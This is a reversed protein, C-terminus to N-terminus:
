ARPPDADAGLADTPAPGPASSAASTGARQVLDVTALVELLFESAATAITRLDDPPSQELVEVLVQHHVQALDLVSVGDEVARHGLEYGAALAAESRRPLYRLFAARYDRTLSEADV